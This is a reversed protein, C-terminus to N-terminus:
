VNFLGWYGSEQALALSDSIDRSLCLLMKFYM